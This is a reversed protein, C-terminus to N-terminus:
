NSFLKRWNLGMIWDFPKKIPAFSLISTLLISIAILSIGGFLSSFFPIEYMGLLVLGGRIIRHLVYIQLTREGWSCLFTRRSPAIRLIAISLVLAILIIIVHNRIGAVDSGQYHSSGYMLYLINSISDGYLAYWVVFAMALGVCLKSIVHNRLAELNGKSCYYGLVFYPFFSFTRALSLFSGLQDFCGSTLSVLFSLAIAALPKTEKLFPVSLYWFCLSFLYWPASGFSLLTSSLPKSPNEMVILIIQFLMALILTSFIKSTRLKGDRFISKAFFGTVFVFLPMHFLYVIDYIVSVFHNANHIPLIFHGLVVLFILLGKTSDLYDIRKGM